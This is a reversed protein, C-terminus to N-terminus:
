HWFLRLVRKNESCKPESRPCTHMQLNWRRRKLLRWWLHGGGGRIGYRFIKLQQRDFMTGEHVSKTTRETLAIRRLSVNELSKTCVVYTELQLCFMKRTSWMPIRDTGPRVPVYRSRKLKPVAHKSKQIHFSVMAVASCEELRAASGVDCVCVCVCVCTPDINWTVVVGRDSVYIVLWVFSVTVLLERSVCM